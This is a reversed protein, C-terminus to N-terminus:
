KIRTAIDNKFARLKKQFKRAALGARIFKRDLKRHTISDYYDMLEESMDPLPFGDLLSIMAFEESALAIGTVDIIQDLTGDKKCIINAPHLDCHLLRVNHYQSTAKIIANFLAKPRAVTPSIKYVDYFYKGRSSYIEDLSSESLQAQFDLVQKYTDFIKDDGPLKAIFEALTPNPNYKYVEYWQAFYGHINIKPINFGKRTLNESVQKDRTAIRSDVFKCIIPGRKRTDALFIPKNPTCGDPTRINTANPFSNKIAAHFFTHKDLDEM